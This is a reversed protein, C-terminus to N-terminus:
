KLRTRSIGERERLRRRAFVVLAVLIPPLPPLFVAWFKYRAQITAIRQEYDRRSKEIDNDRQRQLRADQQTAQKQLQDAKERQETQIRMLEDLSIDEGRAQKDQLDKVRQDLSKIAAERKEKLENIAKDYDEKLEKRRVQDAERVQQTEAEVLALTSYRLKRSRIANFREDGVLSDLVNLVFTVNDFRFNLQSDPRARIGLFEDGLIDVDTVYVVHMGDRKKKDSDAQKKDDSKKDASKKDAEKEAAGDDAMKQVDEANKRKGTIRAALIKEGSVAGRAKELEFQDYRNDIWKNFPYSGSIDPNTSCLKEFELGTGSIRKLGGPFPFLIEELGKTTSDEQSLGVTSTGNPSPIKDRVYVFEPGMYSFDLQPYPNYAQWVMEPQYLPPGQMGLSQDGMRGLVQIGLADWLQQINCKEPPPQGGGFMGGPAQKPMGTGPVGRIFVPIPDEFIATPIGAEIAAIVNPLQTPVLSSPQVLLLADYKEADIPNNADVQEVKYQLELEGVIARKPIQQPSMGSFTMGGLMQADTQVVGITYREGRAVTAISRVLEYEISAGFDFFPIVVKELGSTFAAGLIIQEDRFQGRSETNVRQPKIGYRQDAQQARDSYPDVNDYVMVQLKSGGLRQLEKLMSMLDHRVKMYQEPINTSIYAEIKIPQKTDLNSVLARTASSLSSVQNQTTDVRVPDYYAFLINASLAVVVLSVIRVLYHGLLSEGDRGGYWHRRGVLVMSLYIGVMIVLLFYLVGGLSVVGRGFDDLYAAIGLQKIRQAWTYSPIFWDAYNAAVLPVNFLVGLLFGVTLNPTLFSAIMGLSLMALGMLWYGLYTTFLMGVDLQGLSLSVLVAFNSLQSFLLAATYIAAAALYKGVVIDFDDAPLTLLLEDTGQRREEAWISMTISPIYILMILPLWYNLQDLNALNSAFFQPPLFAVCTTLIVFFCLFVYGTPNAFYGIFNRKLVAFAARKYVMLPALALALVGILAADIAILLGMQLIVDM